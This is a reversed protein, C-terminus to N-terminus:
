KWILRSTSRGLARSISSRSCACPALKEALDTTTGPICSILWRRVLGFDAAELRRFALIDTRFQHLEEFPEPHSRRQDIEAAFIAIGGIDPGIM